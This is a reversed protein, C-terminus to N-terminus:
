FALTFKAGEFERFKLDLWVYVSKIKILSYCQHQDFGAFWACSSVILELRLNLNQVDFYLESLTFLDSISDFSISQQQLIYKRLILVCTKRCM